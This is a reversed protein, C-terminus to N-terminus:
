KAPWEVKYGVAELLELARVEVADKFEAISAIKESGKPGAILYKALLDAAQAPDGGAAAVKEVGKKAAIEDLASAKKEEKKGFFPFGGKGKEDEKKEEKKEEPKEEKATKVGALLRDKLATATKEPAPTAAATKEVAAGIKKLEDVYAHAMRRGLFDAEANKQEWEAAAQKTKEFEAKAAATKHKHSHKHGHEGAVKVAAGPQAAAKTQAYFTNWATAVDEDSMTSLDLGQEAALKAFLEAHAVKEAEDATPASQPQATAYAAALFENMESM